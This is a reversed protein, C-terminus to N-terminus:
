CYLKKVAEELLGAAGRSGNTEIYLMYGTKTTSVSVSVIPNWKSHTKGVGKRVYACLSISQGPYLILLPVNAGVLSIRDDKIVLDDSTVMRAVDSTNVVDLVIEATCDRCTAYNTCSAMCSCEENNEFLDVNNSSIVLIGLRHAIIEDQVVTNSKNIAIEDIALTSVNTMLSRRVQNMIRANLTTLECTFYDRQDDVIRIHPKLVDNYPLSKYEGVKTEIPLPLVLTM